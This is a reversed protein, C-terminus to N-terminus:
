SKIGFKVAVQYEIAGNEDVRGRIEKVEFWGIPKEKKVDKVLDEIADCYCKKSTGVKEIIEFTKVM